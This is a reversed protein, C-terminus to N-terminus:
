RLHRHFSPLLTQPTNAMVSEQLQHLRHYPSRITSAPKSSHSFPPNLGSLVDYSSLTIFSGNGQEILLHIIEDKRRVLDEYSDVVLGSADWHPAEGVEGLTAGVGSGSALNSGEGTGSAEVSYDEEPHNVYTDFGEGEAEGTVPISPIFDQLQQQIQRHIAQRQHEVEVEEEDEEEEDDDEEEDRQQDEAEQRQRQQNLHHNLDDLSNSRLRKRSELSTSM